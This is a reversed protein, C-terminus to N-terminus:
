RRLILLPESRCRNFRFYACFSGNQAIRGPVSMAHVESIEPGYRRRDCSPWTVSDKICGSSRGLVPKQPSKSWPAAATPIAMTTMATKSTPDCAKRDAFCARGCEVASRAAELGTAVKVVLGMWVENGGEGFASGGDGTDVLPAQPFQGCGPGGNIGCTHVTGGMVGSFQPANVSSVM